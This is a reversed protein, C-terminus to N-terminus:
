PGIWVDTYRVLTAPRQEWKRANVRSASVSNAHGTYIYTAEPIIAFAPM